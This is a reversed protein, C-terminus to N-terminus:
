SGAQGSTGAPHTPLTPPCTSPPNLWEPAQQGQSASARRILFTLCLLQPWALATLQAQRVRKIMERGNADTYFENGSAIDSTYQLPLLPLATVVTTACTQRGWQRGSVALLSCLPLCAVRPLVDHM